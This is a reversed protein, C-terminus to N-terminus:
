EKAKLTEEALCYSMGVRLTQNSMEGLSGNDANFLLKEPHYKDYFGTGFWTNLAETTTQGNDAMLFVESFYKVEGVPFSYGINPKDTVAAKHSVIRGCDIYEIHDFSIPIWEGKNLVSLVGRHQEISSHRFVKQDNVPKLVPISM